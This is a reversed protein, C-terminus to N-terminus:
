HDVLPGPRGSGMLFVEAVGAGFSAGHAMGEPDALDGLLGAEALGRDVTDQVLSGTDTGAGDGLHVLRDGVQLALPGLDPDPPAREEDVQDHLGGLAEGGGDPRRQLGLQRGQARGHDAGAEVQALVAADLVGDPREVVDGAAARVAHQELRLVVGLDDGGDSPHHVCADRDDGEDGVDRQATAEGVDADVVPRRARGRGVQQGTAPSSGARHQHRKLLLENRPSSSRSIPNRAAIRASEGVM